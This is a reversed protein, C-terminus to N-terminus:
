YNEKIINILRDLQDVGKYEFILTGTNNKKNNLFVKMGIKSSLHDEIDKSNPDKSKNSLLYKSVAFYSVLILLIIILIFTWFGFFKITIYGLPLSVLSGITGPMFKIFGLNFLTCFNVILKNIM